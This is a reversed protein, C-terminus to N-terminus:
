ITYIHARKVYVSSDLVGTNMKAARLYTYIVDPKIQKQDHPNQMITQVTERSEKSRPGSM